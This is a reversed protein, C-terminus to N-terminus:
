QAAESWQRREFAQFGRQFDACYDGTPSGTEAKEIDPSEKPKPVEVVTGGRDANKLAEALKKQLALNEEQM